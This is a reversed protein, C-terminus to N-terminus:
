TLAKHQSPLAGAQAGGQDGEAGQGGEMGRLWLTRAEWWLM